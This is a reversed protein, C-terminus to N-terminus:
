KELEKLRKELSEKDIHRYLYQWCKRGSKLATFTGIFTGIGLSIFILSVDSILERKVLFVLIIVILVVVTWLLVTWWISYEKYDEPHTVRKLISTLFKKERKM